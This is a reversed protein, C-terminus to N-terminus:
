FETLPLFSAARWPPVCGHIKTVLNDLVGGAEAENHDRHYDWGLWDCRRKALAKWDVDDMGKLARGFGIFSKRWTGQGIVHCPVKKVHCVWQVSGAIQAQKAMTAGDSHGAFVGGEIGVSIPQRDAFLRGLYCRWLELMEGAGRDWAVVTTRTLEPNPSTGDWYGIGTTKSLDFALFSM